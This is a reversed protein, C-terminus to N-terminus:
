TVSPLWHYVVGTIDTTQPRWFADTVSCNIQSFKDVQQSILEVSRRMSRQASVRFFSAIGMHRLQLRCANM